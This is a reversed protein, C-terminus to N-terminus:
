LSPRLPCHKYNEVMLECCWQPAKKADLWFAFINTCSDNSRCQLAVVHGSEYQHWVAAVSSKAAIEMELM